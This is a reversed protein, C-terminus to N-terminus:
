DHAHLNNKAVFIYILLLFLNQCCIYLDITPLLQCLISFLKYFIFFIPLSWSSICDCGM